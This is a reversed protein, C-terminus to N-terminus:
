LVGPGGGGPGGGRAGADCYTGPVFPVTCLPIFEFRRTTTRDYTTGKKGCSGCIPKSGRRPRLTFEIEGAKTMRAESYVVGKQKEVRNLITKLQM